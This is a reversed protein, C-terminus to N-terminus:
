RLPCVERGAQDARVDKISEHARLTQVVDNYTEFGVSRGFTIVVFGDKRVNYSAMDSADKDFLINAVAADAAAQIKVQDQTLEHQSACSSLVLASTLALVMTLTKM